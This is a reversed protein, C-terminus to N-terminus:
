LGSGNKLKDINQQILKKETTSVCLNLAKEYHALATQTQQMESYLEGLIAHLLYYQQLYGIGPIEKISELAKAPGELEKIAIARNLLIVPSPVLQILLNYYDMIAKWDTDEYKAAKCHEYAIAAELHYRSIKVGHSARDLYFIGMEIMEKDWLSRNQQKMLLLEGNENVRGSFRSAHFYLLALLADTPPTNTAPHATLLTCLRICDAALDERVLSDHYSSSYAENFLLYITELVNDLRKQLSQGTPIELSINNERFAQRARYLRKEITDASTIFAKAIQAVTFGSLTKLILAIQSEGSISPHCCAFMMRLQDDRVEEDKFCDNLTIATTYESNLLSSIDSAFTQERRYKRIIDIAKNKAARFLWAPPNDPIGKGSWNELAKILVDQVVDEAMALNHAGFIRTLVSVLKGSETRTLDAVLKQVDMKQPHISDPHSM